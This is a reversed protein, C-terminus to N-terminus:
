PAPILFARILATVPPFLGTLDARDEELAELVLENIGGVIATALAPSVEVRAGAEQMERVLLAGFRRLVQRRVRLGREGLHLIEIFRTRVSGADSQLSALYATTGAVIRAEGPPLPAIAAEIASLVEESRAEFLALLCAEKGDFHEYFTRRSVRARRVVDAITLEAYGTGAIAEQMGKLLRTRHDDERTQM